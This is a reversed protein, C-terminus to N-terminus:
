CCVCRPPLRSQPIPLSRYILPPPPQLLRPSGRGLGLTDRERVVCVFPGHEAFLQKVFAEDQLDGKVFRFSGGNAPQIKLMNYESGGSLDDVGIVALGLEMAAYRAVHSGIFGASGTVLVKAGGAVGRLQAANTTAAASCRVAQGAAGTLSAGTAGQRSMVTFLAVCALAAVVARPGVLWGRM